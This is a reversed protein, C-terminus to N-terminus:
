AFGRRAMQDGATIAARRSNIRVARHIRTSSGCLKDQSLTTVMKGLENPPSGTAGSCSILPISMEL